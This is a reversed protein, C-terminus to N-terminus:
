AGQSTVAANVRALARILAWVGVALLCERAAGRERPM